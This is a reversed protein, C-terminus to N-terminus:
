SSFNFTKSPAQLVFSHGGAAKEAEAAQARARLVVQERVALMTQQQQPDLGDVLAKASGLDAVELQDLMGCFLTYEDGEASDLPTKFVGFMGEDAEEGGELGGLGEFLRFADMEDFTEEDSLYEADELAEELEDPTEPRGLADAAAESGGAESDEYAAAQEYADGLGSFLVLAAPVLHPWARQLSGSRAEPPVAILRTLTAIGLRRNHLGTFADINSFWMAFFRGALTDGSGGGVAGAAVSAADAGAASGDDMSELLELVSNTDLYLASIVVNLCMVRMYDNRFPRTNEQLLRETVLGVFASIYRGIPMDAQGGLYFMILQMCKAAHWRSDEADDAADVWVSRLMDFLMELAAPQAAFRACGSEHNLYNYLPIMFEQFYDFCEDKFAAHMVGLLPWTHDTVGCSTIASLLDVIDDIFDLPGDTLVRACLGALAPQLPLQEEAGGGKAYVNALMRCADICGSAAFVKHQSEESNPDYDLLSYFSQTLADVLDVAYPRLAAGHLKILTTLVDLLDDNESERLQDMLVEVIRPLYDVIAEAALPQHTIMSQLCVSAQIRVPLEADTMCDFISQMLGVIVDVSTFMVKSCAQITACARARLFGHESGFQPAVLNVLIDEMGDKFRKRKNFADFLVSFMHLAGDKVRPDAALAEDEPRMASNLFTAFADLTKKSRYTALSDLVSEAAIVPDVFDRGAAFKSRVYEYPDSAWLADDADTHCMIPFIVDAVIQQVLPQVAIWTTSHRVSTNVYALAREQVRPALWQGDCTILLQGVIAELSPVSWRGVFYAAFEQGFRADGSAAGGEGDGGGGEEAGMIGGEEGGELPTTAVGYNDFLTNALHCAWKKMKWVPRQGLETPDDGEEPPAAQVALVAVVLSMWADLVETSMIAPPLRYRCLSMYIKLVQKVVLLADPNDGGRGLYGEAIAQLQPLMFSLIAEYPARRAGTVDSHMHEM